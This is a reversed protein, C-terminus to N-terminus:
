LAIMDADEFAAHFLYETLGDPLSRHEACCSLSLRRCIPYHCEAYRHECLQSHEPSILVAVHCVLEAAGLTCYYYATLFLTCHPPFNPIRYLASSLFTVIEEWAATHIATHITNALPLVSLSSHDASCPIFPLMTNHFPFIHQLSLSCHEASTLVFFHSFSIMLM